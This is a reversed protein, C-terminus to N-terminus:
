APECVHELVEEVMQEDHTRVALDGVSIIGILRQNEDLVPLRRIQESEMVKAAYRLDDDILCCHASRTMVEGVKTHLPDDGRAVARIAIDRDTIAGVMRDGEMVPLMGIDREQMMRAAECITADPKITAVDTTLIERVTMAGADHASTRRMRGESGSEFLAAWERPLQSRVDRMEGASVAERLVSIVARAHHMSKPFDVQERGSVRQFFEDLTMRLGHMPVALYVGLERPLQAALDKAEGSDLREALTEFTCRIARLAEDTSALQARHQVQGIFRDFTM